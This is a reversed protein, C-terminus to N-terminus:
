RWHLGAMVGFTGSAVSCVPLLCDARMPGPRHSSYSNPRRGGAPVERVFPGFLGLIMYATGTPPRAPRPPYIHRARRPADVWVYVACAAAAVEVHFRDLRPPALTRAPLHPPWGRPCSRRAQGLDQPLVAGGGGAGGESVGCPSGGRRLLRGWPRRCPRQQRRPFMDCSLTSPKAQNSPLSGHIRITSLVSSGL